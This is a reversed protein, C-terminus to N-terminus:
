WVDTVPPAPPLRWLESFYSQPRDILRVESSTAASGVTSKSLWLRFSPFATTVVPSFKVKADGAADCTVRGHVEYWITSTSRRQIGQFVPEAAPHPRGRAQFFFAGQPTSRTILPEVVAKLPGEYGADSDPNGLVMSVKTGTCVVSLVVQAWLRYQGTERSEDQPDESFQQNTAAAFAQLAGNAVPNELAGIEDRAIPAIFGKTRVVLTHKKTVVPAGLASTDSTDDDDTPSACGSASLVFVAAFALARRTLMFRDPQM